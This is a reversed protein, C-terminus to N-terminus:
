KTEKEYKAVLQRHLTIPCDPTHQIEEPTFSEVDCFKCYCKDADYFYEQYYDKALREADARAEALENTLDIIQKSFSDAAELRKQCVDRYDLELTEFKDQLEDREATLQEVQEVLRANCAETDTLKNEISRPTKIDTLVDQTVSYDSVDAKRSVIYKAFDEGCEKCEYLEATHECETDKECNPCLIKM